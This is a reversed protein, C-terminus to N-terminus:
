NIQRHQNKPAAHPVKLQPMCVRQQPMHSGTGQGSILSLGVASSLLTRVLPGGPFDRGPPKSATPIPIASPLCQM